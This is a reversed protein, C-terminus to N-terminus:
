KIELRDNIQEGSYVQQIYLVDEMQIPYIWQVEEFIATISLDKNIIFKYYISESVIDDNIKWGVFRYGENPIATVSISQGVEYHGGNNSVTGMSIDNSVISINAFYKRVANITQTGDVGFNTSVNKITWYAMEDENPLKYSILQNVDIWYIPVLDIQVSDHKRARLYLEYQARDMALKNSYINDYEDGSLVMRVQKPFKPFNNEFTPIVDTPSNYIDTQAGVYFPSNINSEWAIGHPQAYGLYEASTKTAKIRYDWNYYRLPSNSVDITKWEIDEYILHIKTIPTEIIIRSDGKAIGPYLNNSPYLDNSPYLPTGSSGDDISFGIFWVNNDGILTPNPMSLYLEDGDIEEVTAQKTAEIFGGYVEIYNKVDEFSTDLQYGFSLDQLADNDILPVVRGGSIAGYAIPQFYFTGDVDFFMEWNPNIDRLETLLDYSTSGADVRIEYPTTAQPPDLIIYDQFGQETIISKVAEKISTGANIVYEMGELNGNRLGTLKSMLDVAQFSLSNEEANYTLSPQNILYIGQNHWVDEGTMIDKIALNIRLYKDFWFPNGAKWYQSVDKPDDSWKDIIQMSVDCTRRIDSDADINFDASEVLGSIEDIIYYNYDLIELKINIDRYSQLAVDYQNQTVM